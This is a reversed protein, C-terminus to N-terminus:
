QTVRTLLEKSLLGNIIDAASRSRKRRRLLWLSVIAVAAVHNSHQAQAGNAKKGPKDHLDQLVCWLQLAGSGGSAGSMICPAQQLRVQPNATAGNHANMSHGMAGMEPMAAKGLLVVCVPLRV